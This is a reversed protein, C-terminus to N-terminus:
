CCLGGARSRVEMSANFAMNLHGQEDSQLMRQLSKKFIENTFEEAMVMTGGTSDVAAKAEALGV